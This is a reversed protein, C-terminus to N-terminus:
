IVGNFAGGDILINQGTLYGSHRSAIFACWVGFDEPNGAHGVPIEAVREAKITDKDVNRSAATRDFYQEMRQTEFLGPLLNNITVGHPAVERALAATFGTLGARAATSLGLMPIVMKVAGSTINIVRGWKRAIMGDMVATTLHIASLMNDNIVKLWAAETWTRFDGPPPGAANNVLIDPAPTAALVAARGESTTVDAAIVTVKMDAAREIEAAASKLKAADRGNVTVHVGARALSIACAKGLGASSGCVVATKGAIGFDIGQPM